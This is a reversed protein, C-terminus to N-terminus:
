DNLYVRVPSGPRFNSWILAAAAAFPTTKTPSRPPPRNEPMPSVPVYLILPDRIVTNIVAFGKMTEQAHM